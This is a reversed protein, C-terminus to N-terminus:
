KTSGSDASHFGRSQQLDTVASDGTRIAGDEINCSAILTFGCALAQDIMEEAPICARGSKIILHFDVPPFGDYTRYIVETCALRDATRFDFLFDYLKGEHSLARTLAESLSAAQLPPRLLLCADVALTEEAPRLRVGDKKAELFRTTDRYRTRLAPSLAGTIAELDHASGLYLAAHPWFGPLFWNSVADDHRTIFVDGPRAMSLLAQRQDDTIRKPAGFAKVGPQRMEAIASGSWRFIHFMVRRYGSHHSRLFSFWRYWLRGRWQGQALNQLHEEENGLLAILPRYGEQDGLALIEDRNARYFDVAERFQQLRKRDTVSKHLSSFTYRPLGFHQEPEDLKKWVVPRSRALEAVFTSGRVLLCAATFATVFYPLNSNWDRKLGQLMDEIQQLTSLLAMRSSLYQSYRTRIQEDEDPTFWGRQQAREVIILEETLSQRTPIGLAAAEVSRVARPLTIDFEQM